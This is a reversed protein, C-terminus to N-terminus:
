DFFPYVSEKNIVTVNEVTFYQFLCSLISIDAGSPSVVVFHVGSYFQEGPCNL